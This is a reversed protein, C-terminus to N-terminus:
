NLTVAIRKVDFLNAWISSRWSLATDTSALPCPQDHQPSFDGVHAANSKNLGTKSPCIRSRLKAAAPTCVNNHQKANNRESSKERKQKDGEQTLGQQAKSNVTKQTWEREREAESERETEGWWGWRWRREEPFGQKINKKHPSAAPHILAQGPQVFWGCRWPLKEIVEM